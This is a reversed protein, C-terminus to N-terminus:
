MVVTPLFMLGVEVVRWLVVAEVTIDMVARSGM